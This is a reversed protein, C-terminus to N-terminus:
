TRLGRRSCCSYDMGAIRPSAASCRHMRRRYSRNRYTPHHVQRTRNSRHRSSSRDRRVATVRMMSRRRGRTMQRRNAFGIERAMIAVMVGATAADQVWVISASASVAMAMATMAAAAAVAARAGLEMRGEWTAPSPAVADAAVEMLVAGTARDAEKVRDAGVAAAVALGANVAGLKTAALLLKLTAPRPAVRPEM